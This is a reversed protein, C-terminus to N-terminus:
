FFPRSHELVTILPKGTLWDIKEVVSFHEVRRTVPSYAFCVRNPGYWNPDAYPVFSGQIEPQNLLGVTLDDLNVKQEKQSRAREKLSSKLAEVLSSLRYVKGAAGEKCRAKAIVSDCWKERDRVDSTSELSHLLRLVFSRASDADFKRRLAAEVPSVVQRAIWSSRSEASARWGSLLGPEQPTLTFDHACASIPLNGGHASLTEQLEGGYQRDFDRLLGLVNRLSTLADRGKRQTQPSWGM